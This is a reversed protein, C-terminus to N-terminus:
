KTAPRTNLLREVSARQFEIYRANRRSRLKGAKGLTYVRSVTSSLLQAAERAPMWEDRVEDHEHCLPM